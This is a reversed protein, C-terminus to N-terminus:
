ICREHIAKITVTSKIYEDLLFMLTTQCCGMSCMCVSVDFWRYRHDYHVAFHAPRENSTTLRMFKASSPKLVFFGGNWTIPQQHHDPGVKSWQTPMCGRPLFTEYDLRSVDGVLFTDSDLYVIRTYETENWLWFKMFQDYYVPALASLTSVYPPVIPKRDLISYGASSLLAVDDQGVQEIAVVALLPVRPYREAM